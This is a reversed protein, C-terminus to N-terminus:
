IKTRMGVEAKISKKEHVSTKKTPGLAWSM